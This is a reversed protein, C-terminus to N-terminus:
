RRDINMQLGPSCSDLGSPVTLVCYLQKTTKNETSTSKLLALIMITHCDLSNSMIKRPSILRYRRVLYVNLKSISAHLISKGNGKLLYKNETKKTRAM